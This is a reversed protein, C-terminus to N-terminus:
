NKNKYRCNDGHWKKYNRRDIEKKCYPCKIKVKNAERIKNLEEESKIRGRMKQKSEESRKSGFNPNDKGYKGFMSNGEGSFSKSMNNRHEETFKVGKRKESWNKKTEESHHKGYFPNLKDLKCIRMQELTEPTHKCGGFYFSEYKNPLYRNYGNPTLTDYKLIYETEGDLLDKVNRYDDQLIEKVFNELGYKNIDENVYKSSSWYGDNEPIGYCIKSGVYQKNTLKNTIIYVYYIKSKVFNAKV